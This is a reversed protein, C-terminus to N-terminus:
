TCILDLQIFKKHGRREGATVHLWATFTIKGGGDVFFCFLVTKTKIM